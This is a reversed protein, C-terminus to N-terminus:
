IDNYCTNETIKCYGSQELDFINRKDVHGLCSGPM